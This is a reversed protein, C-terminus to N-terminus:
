IKKILIYDSQDDRLAISTGRVMYAIPNKLPSEMDISVDSGKVFGLDLLRRRNAGRCSKSLGVILAKETPKLSSLKYSNILDKDVEKEQVTEVNINNAIEPILIIEEGNAVFKIKSNDKEIIRVFSGVNIGEALIQRYVILPNDEIHTICVLEGVKHEYISNGMVVDIEGRGNPIPDGHPDIKPDGLMYTMHLYDYEDMKHEMLDARKHWESAHYGTHEALYKEYLRHLRIIRLAYNRGTESLKIVDEEDVIVLGSNKMIGIIRDFNKKSIKSVIELEEVSLSKGREDFSYILKLIDEIRTRDKYKKKSGLNMNGNTYLYMFILFVVLAFTIIIYVM